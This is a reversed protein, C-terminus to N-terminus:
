ISKRIIFNLTSCSLEKFTIVFIRLWYHLKCFQLLRFEELLKEICILANYSKMHLTLHSFPRNVKFVLEKSQKEDFHEIPKYIKVM